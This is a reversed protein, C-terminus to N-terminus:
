TTQLATIAEEVSEHVSFASNLRTILLIKKITDSLNAIAVEGGASRARTLISILFTLGISSLYTTQALDVVFYHCGEQILQQVEEIIVQNDTPDILSDVALIQINDQASFTHM